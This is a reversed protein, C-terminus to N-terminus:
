TLLELGLTLIQTQILSNASINKVNKKKKKIPLQSKVRSIFPGTSVLSFLYENYGTTRM